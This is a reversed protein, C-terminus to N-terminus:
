DEKQDPLRKLSCVAKGDALSVTAYCPATGGCTGPNLLTLGDLELLYPSHTHGFLCLAANQEMAAYRLSMLSFKVHYAHGHCAFIRVGEVSTLIQDSGESRYDCNGVVGFVPIGSVQERLWECDRIYDGLHCILDPQELRVIQLMTEKAGHSDSLVLLKKM